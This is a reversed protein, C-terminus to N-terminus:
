FYEEFQKGWIECSEEIKKCFNRYDESKDEEKEYNEEYIPIFFPFKYCRIAEKSQNTYFDVYPNLILYEVEMQENTPFIVGCRTGGTIYLYSM